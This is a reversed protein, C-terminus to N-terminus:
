LERANSFAFSSVGRTTEDLILTRTIPPEARRDQRGPYQVAFVEIDPAFQDSFAYFYSASGGAHPFCILRPADPKAKHFRRLWTQDPKAQEPKAQESKAQEPRAAAESM